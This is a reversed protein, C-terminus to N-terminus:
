SAQHEATLIEDPINERDLFRFSAAEAIHENKISDSGALDAITRAIRIIRTYSRASLGLRTFLMELLDKCEGSLPCYKEIDKAPIEDNTKYPENAFRQKQIAIANQVRGYVKQFGEGKSHQSGPRSHPM